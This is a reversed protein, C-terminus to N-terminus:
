TSGCDGSGFFGVERKQVMSRSQLGRLGTAHTFRAKIKQWRRSFDADGSPLTWVAHLHDPLIVMARCDIPHEAATVRYAARLLDIHDTLATGAEQALNVTFYYSTGSIRLSRFNPM